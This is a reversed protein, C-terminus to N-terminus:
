LEYPKGGNRKLKKVMSNDWPKWDPAPVQMTLMHGWFGIKTASCCITGNYIIPIEMDPEWGPPKGDIWDPPFQPKSIGQEKTTIMDRPKQRRDFTIINSTESNELVETTVVSKPKNPSLSIVEGGMMYKNNETISVSSTRGIIIHDKFIYGLISAIERYNRTLEMDENSPTPDGDPHNHVVVVVVVEKVGVLTRFVDKRRPAVRNYTGIEVLDYCVLVNFADLGLVLFGEVLEPDGRKNGYRMQDQFFGTQFWGLFNVLERTTNFPHDKSNKLM